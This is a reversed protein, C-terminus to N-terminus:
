DTSRGRFTHHILLSHPNYVYVIKTNSKTDFKKGDLIDVGVCQGIDLVFIHAIRTHKM